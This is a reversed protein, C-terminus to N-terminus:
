QFHSYTLGNQLGRQGLNQNADFMIDNGVKITSTISSDLASGINSVNILSNKVQDLNNRKTAWDQSSNFSAIDANVSTNAAVWNGDVFRTAGDVQSLFANVGSTGYNISNAFYGGIGDVLNWVAQQYNAENQYTLSGFQPVASAVSLGQTLTGASYTVQYPKENITDIPKIQIALNVDNALSPIPNYGSYGFATGVANASQVLPTILQPPSYTPLSSPATFQVGGAHAQSVLSLVSLALLKKKM